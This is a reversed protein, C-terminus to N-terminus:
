GRSASFGATRLRLRSPRNGAIEPQRLPCVNLSRRTFSASELLNDRSPEQETRRQQQRLYEAESSTPEPTKIRLEELLQALTAIM